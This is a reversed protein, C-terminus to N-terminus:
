SRFSNDVAFHSIIFIQGVFFYLFKLLLHIALNEKLYKLYINRQKGNQEKYDQNYKSEIIVMKDKLEDKYKDLIQKTKLDDMGWVFIIKDAVDKISNLSLLLFEYCSDGIYSVILKQM